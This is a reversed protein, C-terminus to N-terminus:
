YYTKGEAAMAKMGDTAKYAEGLHSFKESWECITKVGLEDMWRLLGGRFAPFGLGWLLAMDAEPASAVIGEEFCRAMEIAMPLMARMVIEEDTLEVQNVQCEAVLAEAAPDNARQPRGKADQQYSFFGTDTKQGFRKQQYLADMVSPEVLSMRDPLDTALVDQCHRITDIGCVDSLYAPGMPWGWTEMVKDIRYMDLGDRILLEYARFYPFLVRNVLFAPCDNVVIPKKGLALSYAVVDAITEDSTEEGRIIEVLPMAHVPNFFHMGAFKDPRKLNKALRTISITSTNSVLVGGEGIHDELDALVKAKVEPNEVVAEVIVQTGNLDKDELTPTITSLIEAKKEESMRGQRVKKALLKDAENIGLDLADQNIDKMVAPIGRFASQYAVGGGMIGAGIVAAQDIKLNSGKALKKAVKGVYQDNMFNGILARSQDTKTLENFLDSEMDLAQARDAGTANALLDIVAAPAKLHPARACFQAKAAEAQEKAQEPSVDLASTKVTRRAQYDSPKAQAEALQQLALERLEAVPGVKDVLGAALAADAKQQRAGAMWAMANELGMIRPARVTGGWGPIIGLGTEPLGIKTNDAMVRYDCAVCFELGGGLAFGNITVVTPFPLDEIRNFNNNNVGFYVKMEAAPQTFVGEFETIDAGVVFVPKGSTVLLGKVGEAAELIDLAETLEKVTANNFVNVSGAKADFNLEVIDNDLRSLSLQNGQYM